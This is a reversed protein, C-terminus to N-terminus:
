NGGVVGDHLVVVKRCGVRPPTHIERVEAESRQNAHATCEIEEPLFGSVVVFLFSAKQASFRRESSKSGAKDELADEAAFPRVYAARL